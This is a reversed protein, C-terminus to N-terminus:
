RGSEYAHHWVLKSLEYLESPGLGQGAPPGVTTALADGGERVTNVMDRLDRVFTDRRSCETLHWPVEDGPQARSKASRELMVSWTSSTGFCFTIQLKLRRNVAPAFVLTRIHRLDVESALRLKDLIYARTTTIHFHQSSWFQRYATAHAQKMETYLQRCILLSGKTPPSEQHLLTGAQVVLTDDSETYCPVIRLDVIANPDAPGYVHAFIQDRLEQPINLLTPPSRGSLELPEQTRISALCIMESRDAETLKNLRMALSSSIVVSKHQEFQLHQDREPLSQWYPIFGDYRCRSRVNANLHRTVNNCLIYLKHSIHTLVADCGGPTPPQLIASSADAPKLVTEALPNNFSTM